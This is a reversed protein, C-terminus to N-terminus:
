NTLRYSFSIVGTFGTASQNIVDTGMADGASFSGFTGGTDVFSDCTTDGAFIECIRDAGTTANKFEVWLGGGAPAGNSLLVHIDRVTANVPMVLHAGSNVAVTSVGVPFFNDAGSGALPVTSAGGVIGSGFSAQGMGGLATANTANDANTASDASTAHTANTSNAISSVCTAVGSQAVQSMANGAPCPGSIRQQISSTDVDSASLSGDAVKASTVANDAISPNPYSGTLDGGAPGSPAGGTAACSLDGTQTIATAAQGSPCSTTTGRFQLVSSDLSSELINAGTLTDSAVKSGTVANAGLKPNTVAGTAIKKATVSQSALDKGDISRAIVNAHDGSPPNHGSITNPGVQKNSSVVLSTALATGGLAVFLAVCAVVM